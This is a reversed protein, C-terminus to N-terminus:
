KEDTALQASSIKSPIWRSGTGKPPGIQFLADGIEEDTFEKCLQTNMDESVREEIISTLSDSDVGDDRSYLSQFFEKAM